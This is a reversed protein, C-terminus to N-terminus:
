LNLMPSAGGGISKNNGFGGGQSQQQPIPSTAMNTTSTRRHKNLEFRIKEGTLAGITSSRQRRPYNTEDLPSDSVQPSDMTARPDMSSPSPTATMASPSDEGLSVLPSLPYPLSGDPPRPSSLSKRKIFHDLSRKAKTFIEGGGLFQNLFEHRPYIIILNNTQRFPPCDLWSSVLSVDWHRYVHWM